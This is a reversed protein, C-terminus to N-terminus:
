REVLTDVKSEIRSLIVESSDEATGSYKWIEVDISGLWRPFELYLLYPWPYIQPVEILTLRNLSCSKTYFEVASLFDSTSSPSFLVRFNAWCGLRWSPKASASKCGILVLRSNLVASVPPILFTKEGTVRVGDLSQRTVLDWNLHDGIQYITHSM